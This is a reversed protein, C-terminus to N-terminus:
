SADWGKEWHAFCYANSTRISLRLFLEFKGNQESGLKLSSLIPEFKSLKRGSHQLLHETYKPGSCLNLLSNDEIQTWFWYLAVGAVKLVCISCYQLFYAFISCGLLFLCQFDSNNWSAFLAIQDWKSCGWILNLVFHFIPLSKSGWSLFNFHRYYILSLMKFFKIDPM